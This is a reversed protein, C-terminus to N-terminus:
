IKVLGSKMEAIIKAKIKITTLGLKIMAACKPVIVVVLQKEDLWVIEGVKLGGVLNLTLARM